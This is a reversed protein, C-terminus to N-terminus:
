SSEGVLEAVIRAVGIRWPEPAVGLELELKTTDLESSAPRQAPTPYDATTIADVPPQRATHPAQLRVVESALEHWNTRGGGAWHYTGPSIAAGDALKGAILTIARALERTPTPRGFQDAVVRLRDREAALRMITKVFNNGFASVVWSTRLIFHRACAARVEAEGAAKSAGYVGLPQVADDELYGGQKAGDFVYDTSVHILSAGARACAEALHRAGDRNVRFALDPELEAKDVATYAAANVVLDVEAAFQAAASPDSIDLEARSRAVLQTKDPWSARRLETGLQGQSGLIGVRMNM